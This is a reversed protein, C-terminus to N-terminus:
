QLFYGIFITGNGLGREVCEICGDICNIVETEIPFGLVFASIHEEEGM